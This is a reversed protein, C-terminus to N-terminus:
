ARLLGCAKQRFFGSPKEVTASTAVRGGRKQTPHPFLHTPAPSQGARGHKYLDGQKTYPRVARDARRHTKNERERKCKERNQPM